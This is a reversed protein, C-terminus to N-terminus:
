LYAATFHLYTHLTIEQGLRSTSCTHWTHELLLACESVMGFIHMFHNETLISIIPSKKEELNRKARHIEIASTKVAKM